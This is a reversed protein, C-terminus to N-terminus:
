SDYDRVLFRRVWMAPKDVFLLKHILPVLRYYVFGRGWHLIQYPIEYVLKERLGQRTFFGTFNEAMARLSRPATTPEFVGAEEWKEPDLCMKWANVWPRTAPLAEPYCAEVAQWFLVIALEEFLDLNKQAIELFQAATRRTALDLHLLQMLRMRTLDPRVHPAQPAAAQAWDRFLTQVRTNLERYRQGLTFIQESPFRILDQMFLQYMWAWSLAVDWTFKCAFILAHGFTPYMGEYFDAFSPALEELVLKNFDAVTKLTLENAMDRRIMETTLTNTIAIFDGGPSYLPDLFIGADGICSWRQHSFIQQSHYSYDKFSLFDLPATEKVRRWLAPEYTRLWDLADAYSRGFSSQPHIAEDAVIGVSTAGSALPILWVWYGKGMLHNTSFYRSEVSNNQWAQADQSALDSIDVRAGYRWWAASATHNNKQKLGLKTQLLRRRGLADIVWRGAISFSENREIHRCKIQHKADAEGLIINEIVVGELLVIGMEEAMQRLDNELRGRDLQYSPIPPFLEIGIEPRAELPGQSDGFFFRLGLKYFHNDRLYNELKLGQGLYHGFLELTSEGVKFSAEPLPRNLRDIVMISLSPLELKLQRALTLGALGGGCIVVDSPSSYPSAM